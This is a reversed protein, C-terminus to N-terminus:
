WELEIRAASVLDLPLLVERDESLLLVIRGDRLEQLRGAWEWQGEVAQFTRVKIRKGKVREFDAPRKLPRDL